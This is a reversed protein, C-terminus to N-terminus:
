GCTVTLIRGEPDLNFNIRAPNHDMTVMGNYPVVRMPTVFVIDQLVSAPEGIYSRYQGTGCADPEVPAPPRPAPPEFVRDCGAIATCCACIMVLRMM